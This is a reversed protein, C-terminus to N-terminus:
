AAPLLTKRKVGTREGRGRMRTGRQQKRRAISFLVLIRHDNNTSNNSNPNVENKRVRTQMVPEPGVKSNKCSAMRGM